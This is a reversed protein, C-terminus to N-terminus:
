VLAGEQFLDPPVLEGEKDGEEMQRFFVLFMDTMDRNMERQRDIIERWVEQVHRGGNGYVSCCLERLLDTLVKNERKLKENEGLTREHSLRPVFGLIIYFDILREFLETARPVEGDGDHSLNWFRKAAEIGERQMKSFFELFWRKFLTRSLLEEMYDIAEEKCM